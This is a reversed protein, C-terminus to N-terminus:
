LSISREETLPREKRAKGQLVGNEYIRTEVAGSTYFYKATGHLRGSVYCREERPLFYYLIMSNDIRLLPFYASLMPKITLPFYVVTCSPEQKIQKSETAKSM